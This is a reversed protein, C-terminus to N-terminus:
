SVSVSWVGEKVKTGAATDTDPLTITNLDNGVVLAVAGCGAIDCESVSLAQNTISGLLYHSAQAKSM